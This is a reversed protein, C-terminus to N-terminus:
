INMYTHSIMVVLSRYHTRFIEKKDRRYTEGCNLDPCQAKYILDLKHEKSIKDKINFKSALKTGIYTFKCTNNAAIVSKLTNKLRTEGVKGKYHLMLLNENEETDTTVQTSGTMENQNKM